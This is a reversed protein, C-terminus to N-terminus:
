PPIERHHAFLIGRDQLKARVTGVANPNEILNTTVMTRALEAGIGLENRTFMGGLGELVSAMSDSYQSHLDRALRAAM